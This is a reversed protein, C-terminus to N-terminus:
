SAGNYYIITLHRATVLLPEIKQYLEYTSVTLVAYHYKNIFNKLLAQIYLYNNVYLVQNIPILKKTTNEM